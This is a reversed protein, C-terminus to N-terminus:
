FRIANFNVKRSCNKIINLKSVGYLHLFYIDTKTRGGTGRVTDPDEGCSTV